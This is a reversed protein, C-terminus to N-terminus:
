CSKMFSIIKDVQIEWNKNNLIFNRAKNAKDILVENDMNLVSDITNAISEPTDDPLVFMNELYEMTFGNLKTSIVPTGSILYEIMKSPFTVQSISDNVIRPNILLAANNQIKLMTNNDVNGCYKIRSDRTEYKKIYEELPGRGYIELIINKSKCKGVGNILNEIGNYKTLAGSFVIRYPEDNERNSWQGGVSVLPADKIDFGGDVVIYKSNPSFMRVAHENLVILGSFNKINKKASKNEISKATNKLFSGKMEPLPPDALICFTKLGFIKSVWLVPVAVYPYSNYCIIKRDYNRYKICWLMIHWFATLIMTIQKIFFINIFPISLAMVDNFLNIDERKLILRKERPYAAIPVETFVTLDDRYNNILQKIIGIQMKNGAVSPGIYKGCEETKIVSGLYLVKM